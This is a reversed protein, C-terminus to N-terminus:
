GFGPYTGNGNLMLYNATASNAVFKSNDARARRFWPNCNPVKVVKNDYKRTIVAYQDDNTLYANAGPVGGDTFLPDPLFDSGTFVTDGPNHEQIGTGKQGRKIGTLTLTNGNDHVNSFSILESGIWM